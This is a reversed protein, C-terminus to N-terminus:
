AKAKVSIEMTFVAVIEDSENYATVTVPLNIRTQQESSQIVAQEIELGAQCVFRVDSEARKVFQADMSKFAFAISRQYKKAFYFAHIGGAVDAGVALAGFYMSNLHNKTRRRLKIRVVVERDDLHVIRPRVFALLPIKIWGLLLLMRRMYGISITQSEKM